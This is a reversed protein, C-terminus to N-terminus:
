RGNKKLSNENIVSKYNVGNKYNVNTGSLENLQM